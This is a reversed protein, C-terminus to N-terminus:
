VNFRFHVVDGEQMVYDKGELRWKGADKAGQEGNGEVYDDYAIVEARIFGKEFDTHIRGAAQSANANQTVTWARAEKPGATFFTQLNLLEYGARIVRHLGPENLNLDQLFEGREEEDLLAIEAEIQACVIVVQSDEKSAFEILENTLPNGDLSSEDINAIYMMPKRTILHLQQVLLEQEKNVQFIRAPKGASMHTSLAQYLEKEALAKKNGSKAVRDVRAIAKEVTEIDALILETNITEVDSLPNVKGDVHVVDADEFCRVVQAIADTERINGLFQNGLGEGKSAGAVLGAIDVFEIVTPIVKESKAINALVQLRNDPVPVIGINPEITCFPYNEAAIEARTLANFLTSKGVNPLGVIGCKFGM